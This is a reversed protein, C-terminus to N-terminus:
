NHSQIIAQLESVAEAAAEPPLSKSSLVSEVMNGFIVNTESPAPDDWGRAILASQVFAAAVANASTDLTVDTRVSPLSSEGSFAASAAASGLKQAVLLAGVQNQSSRAIAVGLLKGYTIHTSGGEIQPLVAM